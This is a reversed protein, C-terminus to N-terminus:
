DNTLWRDLKSRFENFVGHGQGLGIHIEKDKSPMANFASFGAMPPCVTDASGVEMRIPIKINRAFNM